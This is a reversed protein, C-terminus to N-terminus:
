NDNDKVEKIKRIVNDIKYLPTAVVLPSYEKSIEEIENLCQKYKRNQIDVNHYHDNNMMITMKKQRIESKLEENEAKLQEYMENLEMAQVVLNKEKGDWAFSYKGLEKGADICREKIWARDKEVNKLDKKLEKNKAKLQQLQKYDEFIQCNKDCAFSLNKCLDNFCLCYKEGNFKEIYQYKYKCEIESM